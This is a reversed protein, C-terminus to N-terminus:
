DLTIRLETRPATDRWVRLRGSARASADVQWGATATAANAADTAAAPADPSRTGMWAFLGALTLPAGTVESVLADGSDFDRRQEGQRLTASGARWQAWALTQGLPGALQLEGERASGRLEFAASWRQPPASDIAMSLRGSWLGQEAARDFPDQLQRAAQPSLAACGSLAAALVLSAPLNM